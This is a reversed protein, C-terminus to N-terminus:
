GLLYRAEHWRRAWGGCRKGTAEDTADTYIELTIAVQAHRLIQQAINPHVNLGRLLTACTRRASRVTIRRVGAGLCARDWFRNFNRPEVPM